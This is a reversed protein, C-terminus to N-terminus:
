GIVKGSVFLETTAGLAGAVTVRPRVYNYQAPVAGQASAALAVITAWNRLAVSGELVATFGAGPDRIYDYGKDSMQDVHVVTGTAAVANGAGDNPIEIVKNEPFAM